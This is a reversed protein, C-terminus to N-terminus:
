WSYSMVWALSIPQNLSPNPCITSHYEGGAAPAGGDRDGRRRRDGRSRLRKEKIDKQPVQHGGVMKLTETPKVQDQEIGHEPEADVEADAGLGRRGRDPEARHIGDVVCAAQQYTGDEAVGGMGAPAPPPSPQEQEADAYHDFADLAVGASRRIHRIDVGVGASHQG